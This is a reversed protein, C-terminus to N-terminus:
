GGKGSAQVGHMRTGEGCGGLVVRRVAGQLVGAAREDCLRVVLVGPQAREVFCGQGTLRREDQPVKLLM